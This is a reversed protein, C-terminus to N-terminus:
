PLPPGLQGFGQLLHDPPRRGLIRRLPVGVCQAESPSKTCRYGVHRLLGDWWRRVPDRQFQHVRVLTQAGKLLRIRGIEEPASRQGLSQQRPQALILSHGAEQGHDPRAPAALRRHDLGPQDGGQSAARQGARLVPEHHLHQGARVRQVLQLDPQQADGGVPWGPQHLLQPAVLPTEQPRRPQHQGRVLPLQEQRNVLKLFEERPGCVPGLALVQHPAQMRGHAVGAAPHPDDDGQPGVEVVARQHVWLEAAQHALSGLDDHREGRLVQRLRDSFRRLLGPGLQLRPQDGGDHRVHALLRARQRHELIGQGLQELPAFPSQQRSFGVLGDAPHRARQGAAGFRQVGPQARRALLHRSLQKQPQDRQAFSDLGGPSADKTGCQRRGRAIWLRHLVHLIHNVGEALMAQECEVAVGLGAGGGHLDRVLREQPLPSPQPFPDLGAAIVHAGM